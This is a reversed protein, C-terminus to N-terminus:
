SLKVGPTLQLHSYYFCGREKLSYFMSVKRIQQYRHKGFKFMSSTFLQHQVKELCFRIEGDRVSCTIWVINVTYVYHTLWYLLAVTRSIYIKIWYLTHNHSTPKQQYMKKKKQLILYMESLISWLFPYLIIWWVYYPATM